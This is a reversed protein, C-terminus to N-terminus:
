FVNSRVLTQIQLHPTDRPLSLGIPHVQEPAAKPPKNTSASLVAAKPPWEVATTKLVPKHVTQKKREEEQILMSMSREIGDEMIFVIAGNNKYQINKIFM